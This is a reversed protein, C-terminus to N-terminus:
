VSARTLESARASKPVDNGQQCALLAVSFLEDTLRANGQDLFRRVEDPSLKPDILCESIFQPAGADTDWSFRDDESPFKRQLEKFRWHSLGRFRFTVTDEAMQAELATIQEAIERARPDGGMTAPGQENLGDLEERLLDYEARLKGNLCIKRAREPSSTKGLLDDLSLGM